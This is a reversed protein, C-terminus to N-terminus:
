SISVLEAHVVWRYTNGSLPNTKGNWCTLLTLTPEATDGMIQQAHEIRVSLPEGAEKVPFSERVRWLQTKGDATTVRIEDGVALNWLGAFVGLGFKNPASLNHHGSLVANGIEGPQATTILHGASDYPINWDSYLQGSQQYTVYNAVVIPLNMNLRPIELRMAAAGTGRATGALKSTVPALTAAGTIPTPGTVGALVFTPTATPKALTKTYAPETATPSRPALSVATATRLVHIISTEDPQALAVYTPFPTVTPSFSAVNLTPVIVTPGAADSGAAIVIAPTNQGPIQATLVAELQQQSVFSYAAYALILSGTLAMVAGILRLSQKSM